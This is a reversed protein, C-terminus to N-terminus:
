SQSAQKKKSKKSKKSPTTPAPKQEDAARSPKTSPGGSKVTGDDIARGAPKEMPGSKVPKDDAFATYTVAAFLGAVLVAILKKM